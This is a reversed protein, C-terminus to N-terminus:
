ERVVLEVGFGGEYAYETGDVTARGDFESGMKAGVISGTWDDSIINGALNFRFTGAVGGGGLMEGDITTNFVGPYTGALDGRFQCEATGKIVPDREPDVDLEAGGVCADLPETGGPTFIKVTFSGAYVDRLERGTDTGGDPGTSGDTDTDGDTGTADTDGDTGGDTDTDTADTGGDGKKGTDGSTDKDGCALVALSLGLPLLVTFSASTFTRM